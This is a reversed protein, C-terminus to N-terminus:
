LNNSIFINKETVCMGGAHGTYDTGDVNLLFVEKVVQNTKMDVAVISSNRSGSSYGCILMWDEEDLYDIGQPVLDQACGPISVSLEGRPGVLKVKEECAFQGPQSLDKKNHLMADAGFLTKLTQETVHIHRASTEVIFKNEM